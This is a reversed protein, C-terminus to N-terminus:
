AYGYCGSRPLPAPERSVRECHPCHEGQRVLYM